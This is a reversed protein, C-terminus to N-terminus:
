YGDVLRDISVEEGDQLLPFVVKGIVDYGQGGGSGFCEGPVGVLYGSVPNGILYVADENEGFYRRVGRQPEETKKVAEQM